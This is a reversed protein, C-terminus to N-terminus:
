IFSFVYEIYRHYSEGAKLIQSPAGDLHPSDPWGSAELAIACSDSELYGGSYLVIAPQDTFLQLKRKKDSSCLVASPVSNSHSNLIFANNYGFANKLQPDNPYDSIRDRILVSEGFDFASGETNVLHTPIHEKNNCLVRGADLMLYQDLGSHDSFCGNLDWYCHSSMDVFTDKDSLATLDMRLSVKGGPIDSLSYSVTFTRNGPYGDLGDQLVAEIVVSTGLVDMSRRILKFDTYMLGHSGGHIHNNGDNKDLHFDESGIRLEGKSIRGACPGLVSGACSPDNKFNCANRILAVNVFDDEKERLEFSEIIGGYLNVKCKANHCILSLSDDNM